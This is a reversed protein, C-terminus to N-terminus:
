GVDPLRPLTVGLRRGLEDFAEQLRPYQEGAQAGSMTVTAIASISPIGYDQDCLTGSGDLFVLRSVGAGAVVYPQGMAVSPTVPTAEERSSESRNLEFRVACGGVDADVHAGDGLPSTSVEGPSITDYRTAQDALQYLVLNYPWNVGGHRDPTGAYAFAGPTADDSVAAGGVAGTTTVYCGWPGTPAWGVCGLSAQYAPYATAVVAGRAPTTALAGALAAAALVGRAVTLVRWGPTPLASRAPGRTAEPAPLTRRRTTTLLRPM